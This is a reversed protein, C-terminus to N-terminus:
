KYDLYYRKYYDMINSINQFILEENGVGLEIPNVKLSLFGNYGTTKLRMLFSEIPLNSIGGGANGPLTGDKDSLYVNKITNGLVKQAKIIDVGSSGDLFSLDIATDGTIKKIDLLSSNRYKPIILLLFEPEVNKVCISIKSEKKIKILKKSFWSVNLDKIYPPSFNVVQVGLFSSLLMIKNVSDEYLGRNPATISLVKIGINDSLSKIYKEDWIDFDDYNLSLDIGDFGAKKAFQFIRHLGYGSLSSTSLLIM